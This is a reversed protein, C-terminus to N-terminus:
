VGAALVIPLGSTLGPVVSAGHSTFGYSSFALGPHAGGFAALSAPIPLAAHDAIWFAIQASVGPDRSVIFQPSNEVLQWAAFVAAIVVTGGLGWWAAWSKSQAPKDREKTDLIPWRGPIERAALMTLAVAAPVSILVMPAPLFRGALLLVIGPLLWAILLLSPLDTVMAFTRGGPDAAERIGPGPQWLRAVHMGWQQLTKAGLGAAAIGRGLRTTKKGPSPMAVTQGEKGLETTDDTAPKAAAVDGTGLEATDGDAPKAAAVDGTDLEATDDAVPTKSTLYGDGLVATDGDGTGPEATDSEAADHDAADPDAADHDATDSAANKGATLDANRAEAADGDTPEGSASDTGDLGAADGEAAGEDTDAPRDESKETSKGETQRATLRPGLRM